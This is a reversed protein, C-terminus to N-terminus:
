EYRNLMRCIDFWWNNFRMPGSAALYIPAGVPSCLKVTLGRWINRTWLYATSGMADLVLVTLLFDARYPLMMTALSVLTLKTQKSMVVADAISAVAMGDRGISICDRNHGNSVENPNM